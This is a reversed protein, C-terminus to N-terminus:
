VGETIYFGQKMEDAIAAAYHADDLIDELKVPIAQIWTQSGSKLYDMIRGYRNIAYGKMDLYSNLNDLEEDTCGYQELYPVKPQEINFNTAKTVGYPLARVNDLQLNHQTIAADRTDARLEQNAYIDLAGGAASALGGIVAGTGGGLLAGSAIGGITGSIAGAVDQAGQWKQQLDLSEIQRNFMAQYNKNNIQYTAWADTIQPMSFDGGCILGRSDQFNQGYLRGFSEPEVKIYPQYPMASMLFMFGSAAGNAYVQKAPVYEWVGNGNPSVIRAFKTLSETKIDDVTIKLQEEHLPTESGGAIKYPERRAPKRLPLFTDSWKM